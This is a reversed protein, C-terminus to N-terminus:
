MLLAKIAKKENKKSIDRTNGILKLAQKLEIRGAGKWYNIFEEIEYMESKLKQTKM